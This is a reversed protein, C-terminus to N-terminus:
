LNALPMLYTHNQYQKSVSVNLIHATFHLNLWNLLSGKKIVYKKPSRVLKRDAFFTKCCKALRPLKFIKLFFIPNSPAFKPKILCARNNNMKQDFKAFQQNKQRAQAQQSVREICIANSLVQANVCSPFFLGLKSKNVNFRARTCESHSFYDHIGTHGSSPFFYGSETWLQGFLIEM